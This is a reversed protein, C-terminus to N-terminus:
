FIRFKHVSYDATYHRSPTTTLADYKCCLDCTRTGAARSWTVVRSLNNVRMHRQKGTYIPVPALQSSFLCEMRCVPETDASKSSRCHRAPSVFFPSWRRGIARHARTARVKVVTREERGFKINAWASLLNLSFYYSTFYLNKQSPNSFFTFIEKIIPTKQMSATSLGVSTRRPM